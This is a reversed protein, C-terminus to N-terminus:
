QGAPVDPARPKRPGKKHLGEDELLLKRVYLFRITEYEFPSGTSYYRFSVNSRQDVANVLGLAWSQDGRYLNALNVGYSAGYDGLLGVAERLTSPGLIPIVL